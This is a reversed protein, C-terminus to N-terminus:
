RNNESLWNQDVVLVNRYGGESLGPVLDVRGTRDVWVPTPGTSGAGGPM